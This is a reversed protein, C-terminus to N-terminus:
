NAVKFVMVKERGVKIVLTPRVKSDNADDFPVNAIYIDMSEM